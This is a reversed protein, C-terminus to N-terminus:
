GSYLLPSVTRYVIEHAVGWHRDPRLRVAVLALILPTM